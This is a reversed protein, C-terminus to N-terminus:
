CMSPEVHKMADYTYMRFKSCIKNHNEKLQLQKKFSVLDFGSSSLVFLKGSIVDTNHSDM